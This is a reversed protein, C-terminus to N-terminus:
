TASMDFDDVASVCYSDTITCVGLIWELGHEFTTLTPIPGLRRLGGAQILHLGDSGPSMIDDDPQSFRVVYMRSCGTEGDDGTYSNGIIETSQDARLGVDIIPLGMYTPMQWGLVDVVQINYGTLRGAKHMGLRGKKNTLIAGQAEGVRGSGWLGVNYIAEDLADFFDQANGASALVNLETGTNGSASVIQGAALNYPAYLRKWLGDFEKVSTDRDGNIVYYSLGREIGMRLMDFQQEVPDRYLSAKNFQALAEDETFSRGFIALEDERFSLTGRSEDYPENIRRFQGESIQDWVAASVHDAGVEVIPFIKLIDSMRRMDMFLGRTFNDQIQAAYDNLTIPM